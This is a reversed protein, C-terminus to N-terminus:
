DDGDPSRSTRGEPQPAKIVAEALREFEKLPAPGVGRAEEQAIFKELQDKQLAASLTLM